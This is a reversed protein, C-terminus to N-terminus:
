ISNTYTATVEGQFRIQINAAEVNGSLDAMGLLKKQNRKIELKEDGTNEM